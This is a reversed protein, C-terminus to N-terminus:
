DEFCSTQILQRITRDKKATINVLEFGSDYLDPNSAQKSWRSKAEITLTKKGEISKPLVLKFKFTKKSEIPEESIIKMGETTLDVLRGAMKKTSEDFVRSYYFHHRRRFSRREEM